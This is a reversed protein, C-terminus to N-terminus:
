IVEEPAPPEEPLPLEEPPLITAQTRGTAAVYAQGYLHGTVMWGYPYTALWGVGCVLVGLGGILSAVWSMVLTVLYTSFNNRVLRFVEGFRFAAGLDGTDAFFGVAAPLVLTMAITYLITICSLIASLASSVGQANESLAGIPISLCLSVIIMPLAYVIEIVLMKLGDTLLVGWNDWEPLVNPEGRIVRRVIEIMYGNLLIAAVILPILLVWSFLIGLLLIGAAILIKKIWDKDEFVFTFAKGVDM